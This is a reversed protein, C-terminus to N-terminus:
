GKDNENSFNKLIYELEDLIGSIAEIKAEYYFFYERSLKNDNISIKDRAIEEKYNKIVLEIQKRM